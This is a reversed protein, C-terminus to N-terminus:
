MVLMCNCLSKANIRHHTNYTNLHANYLLVRMTCFLHSKYFLELRYRVALPEHANREWPLQPGDITRTNTFFVMHIRLAFVIELWRCYIRMYGWLVVGFNWIVGKSGSQAIRLELEQVIKKDLFLYISHPKTLIFITNKVLYFLKFM